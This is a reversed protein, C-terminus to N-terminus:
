RSNSVFSVSMSQIDTANASYKVESISVWYKLPEEDYDYFYELLIVEGEKMHNYSKNGGIDLDTFDGSIDSMGPRKRRNSDGIITVDHMEVSEEINIDRASALYSITKFNATIYVSGIVEENFVIENNERNITYSGLVAKEDDIYVDVMTMKSMVFNDSKFKFTLNDATHLEEKELKVEEGGIYIRAKVGSMAKSATM